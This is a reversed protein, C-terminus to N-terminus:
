KNYFFVLRSKSSGDYILFGSASLLRQKLTQLDSLVPSSNFDQIPKLNPKNFHLRSKKM